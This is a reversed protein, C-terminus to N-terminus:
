LPKLSQLGETAAQDMPSDNAPKPTRIRTILKSLRGPQHDAKADSRGGFEELIRIIEKPDALMLLRYDM